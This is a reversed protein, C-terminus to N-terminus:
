RFKVDGRVTVKGRVVHGSPIYTIVILGDAGDGGTAEGGGGGGGYLGGDGGANTNGGGGGGGGSGFSGTWEYGTGGNGGVGSSVNNDSGGGGGGLTGNAGSAGNGGAGSGVRNYNNGGNGGVGSGTLGVSGGGGGGGGGGETSLGAGGQAGPGNRGGAGGGGGSGDAAVGVGGNGGAFQVTGIYIANTTGGAGITSQNGISLKGGDASVCLTVNTCSSSATANFWTDGGDTGNGGQLTAGVGNNGVGVTISAGPTLQLNVGRSYAGGGAGGTGEGNGDGAGGGAGIVEVMNAQNNWDAPVVWTSTGNTTIFIVKRFGAEAEPLEFMSKISSSPYVFLFVLLFIILNKIIKLM